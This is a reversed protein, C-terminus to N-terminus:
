LMKERRVAGPTAGFQRKFSQTFHGQHSFGCRYAIEDISLDTHQLMEMAREGRRRQVFTWVPEGTTAKFARSFHSPSLCAIAALEAVTLAEGLHAEAYDIARAIRADEPRRAADALSRRVRDAPVGKVYQCILATYVSEHLTTQLLSDGDHQESAHHISHLLHSFVPDDHAFVAPVELRAADLGLRRVRDALMADPVFLHLKDSQTFRWDSEEEAPMIAIANKPSPGEFGRRESRRWLVHETGILDLAIHHDSGHRVSVLERQTEQVMRVARIGSAVAEGQVSSVLSRNSLLLDYTRASEAIQPENM